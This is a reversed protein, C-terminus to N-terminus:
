LASGDSDYLNIHGTDMSGANIRELASVLNSEAGVLLSIDGVDTSIENFKPPISKFREQLTLTVPYPM